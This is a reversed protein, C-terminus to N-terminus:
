QANRQALRTSLIHVLQLLVNKAKHVELANEYGGVDSLKLTSETPKIAAFPLNCFIM